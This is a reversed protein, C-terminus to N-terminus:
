SEKDHIKKQLREMRLTARVVAFVELHRKRILISTLYVFCLTINFSIVFTTITSAHQPFLIPGFFQILFFAGIWLAEEIEYRLDLLMLFGATLM